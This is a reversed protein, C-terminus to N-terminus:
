RDEEEDPRPAFFEDHDKKGHRVLVEWEEDDESKFHIGSGHDAINYRVNQEYREAYQDFDEYRTPPVGVDLNGGVFRLHELCLEVDCTLQSNKSAEVLKKFFEPTITAWSIRLRRRESKTPDGDLNFCYDLVGEETVNFRAMDDYPGMNDPGEIHIENCGRLRLSEPVSSNVLSLSRFTSGNLTESMTDEAGIDLSCQRFDLEDILAPAAIIANKPLAFCHGYVDFYRVFCSSLYSAAKLADGDTESVDISEHAIRFEVKRPVREEDEQLSISLTNNKDPPNWGRRKDGDYNVREVKRLPM